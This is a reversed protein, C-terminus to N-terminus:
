SPRAPGCTSSPYRLGTAACSCRRRSSRWTCTRRTRRSGLVAPNELGRQLHVRDDGLVRGDHVLVIRLLLEGQHDIFPACPVRRQGAAVRSEEHLLVAQAVRDERREVEVDERAVGVAHPHGVDGLHDVHQLRHNEGVLLLHDQRGRVVDELHVHRELVRREHRDGEIGAGVRVAVDRQRSDIGDGCPVRGARQPERDGVHIGIAGGIRM